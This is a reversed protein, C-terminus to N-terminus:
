FGGGNAGYEKKKEGKQHIMANHSIIEITLNAVKRAVLSVGDRLSQPLKNRFNSSETFTSFFSLFFYEFNVSYSILLATSQASLDM